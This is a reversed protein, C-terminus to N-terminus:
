YFGDCLRGNYVLGRSNTRAIHARLASVKQAHKCKSNRRLQRRRERLPLARATDAQMVTMTSSSKVKVLARRSSSRKRLQRVYKQVIHGTIRAFTGGGQSLGIVMVLAGNRRMREHSIARKHTRRHCFQREDTYKCVKQRKRMHPAALPPLFIVPLM